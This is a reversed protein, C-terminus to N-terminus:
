RQKNLIVKTKKAKEAAELQDSFLDPKKRVIEGSPKYELTEAMKDMLDRKKQAKEAEKAAIKGYDLAPGEAKKIIKFGKKAAKALKAGPVAAMALDALDEPIVMEGTASLAASIAAGADEYGAESLPLNVNQNLWEDLKQKARAGLPMRAKKVLVKNEM